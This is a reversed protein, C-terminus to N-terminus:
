VIVEIAPGAGTLDNLQMVRITIPQSLASVDQTLEENPTDVSIVPAVGDDFEVRYGAFRAGHAVQAGSGLRGVGQWEVIADTGELRAMLYAVEREIQSRGVYVFNIVTATAETEGFSIARLTFTRGIDVISAPIIGLTSSDLLVFREGAAHAVPETGKRGRLLLSLEWQGESTEDALAFQILEDGVIALNRRNLLGALDTEDLEAAPTHLTVALVHQEDPFAQPHDPLPASLEGIITEIGSEQGQLYNQGGDLSLEVLAGTWAPLTGSIAVYFILGENDDADRMIHIDLAEILTPGVINSPPPTQPAAPIGEVNSTFASQRDHSLEYQQYGDLVEAKTLRLRKSQGSWQVIVPDAPVLGLWNDPLCFRLTGRLEEISVKHNVAVARAAQVGTMVVASQLSQEGIARRDGARESTQKDTALGGDVDYYLLHMVRPVAISDERASQEIDNEHDDVMDDETITAVSNGGGPIFHLVADYYSPAFFFVQSLSQLATYAPYSNIITLGAVFDDLASVDFMSAEMGARECIARVVAALPVPGVSIASLRMYTHSGAPNGVSSGEDLGYVIVEHMGLGLLNSPVPLDGSTTVTVQANTPNVAGIFEGDWWVFGSNEAEIAVTLGSIPININVSRRLWLHQAPPWNSQIPVSGLTEQGSPARGFPQPAPTNFGSSPLPFTDPDSPVTLGAASQWEWHSGFLEIDGNHVQFQFQPIAGRLDTLDDNAMVLYCTGRHAPTTGVGFAAELDPSPNQTFTGLFLRGVKLFEANEATMTSGPRADYVLQNNKWIRLVATIPGECIRIAYTRYVSETVVKPGGKGSSQKKKVIKPEASAIINGALPQSLGFVIPRPVGEQSTQQALDGVSPGKIVQPDVLGGVAAGLTWGIQAGTPGGYIFGVVAGVVPLVYRAM